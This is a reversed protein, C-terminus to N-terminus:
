SIHIVLIFKYICKTVVICYVFSSSSQLFNNCVCIFLQVFYDRNKYDDESIRTDELENELVPM